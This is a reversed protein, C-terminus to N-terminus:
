SNDFLRIEKFSFTICMGMKVINPNIYVIVPIIYKIVPFLKKGPLGQPPYIPKPTNKIPGMYMNTPITKLTLKSSLFKSVLISDRSTIIPISTPRINM